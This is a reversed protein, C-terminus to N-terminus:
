QWRDEDRRRLELGPFGARCAPAAHMPRTRKGKKKEEQHGPRGDAEDDEADGPVAQRAPQRRRRHHRQRQRHATRRSGNIIEPQRREELTMSRIIAEVPKLEDDDIKADKLEKPMGPMM